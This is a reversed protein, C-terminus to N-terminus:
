KSRGVEASGDVIAERTKNPDGVEASVYVIAERTKNPDRWRLQYM